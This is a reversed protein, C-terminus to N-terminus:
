DQSYVSTVATCPSPTRHVLEKQTRGFVSKECVVLKIDRGKRRYIEQLSFTTGIFKIEM